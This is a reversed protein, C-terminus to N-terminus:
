TCCADVMVSWATLVNPAEVDSACHCSKLLLLMELVKADVEPVGIGVGVDVTADPLAGGGVRSFGMAATGGAMGRMTVLVIRTTGSTAAVSGLTLNVGEGGRRFARWARCGRMTKASSYEVNSMAVPTASSNFLCLPKLSSLFFGM